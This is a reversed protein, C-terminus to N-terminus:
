AAVPQGRFRRYAYATALVTVPYAVLLGVCLAIVGALIVLINLLALLLSDGVNSTVLRVSSKVAEVPSGADDDVIFYTTFYTLFIVAIGPIVLLVLGIVTLVSVILSAVIVNVLNLRSLASGIDFSGGDVVDLAARAIIAGIVISVLTTVINVLISAISIEAGTGFSMGASAGGGTVLSGIFSIAISAVFLILVAVLIAGVNEKFKRWGWGIADPASFPQDYGGPANPPPPPPPPAPPPQGGGPPPASGYGPPESSGYAGSDAPPRNTPDSDGPDSDGPYPPPDNTTM